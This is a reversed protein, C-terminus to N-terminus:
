MENQEGTERNDMGNGNEMKMEMEIRVDNGM